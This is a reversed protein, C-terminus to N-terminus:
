NLTYCHFPLQDVMQSNLIIFCSNPILSDLNRSKAPNVLDRFDAIISQEPYIGPANHINPALPHWKWYFLLLIPVKLGKSLPSLSCTM